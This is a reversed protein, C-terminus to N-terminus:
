RPLDRWRPDPSGTPKPTRPSPTYNEAGIGRDPLPSPSAETAQGDIGLGIALAAGLISPNLFETRSVYIGSTVEVCNNDPCLTEETSRRGELEPVLVESMRKDPLVVVYSRYPSATEVITGAASGPRTQPQSPPYVGILPRFLIPITPCGLDIQVGGVAYPAYWSWRPYKELEAFAAHASGIAIDTDFQVDEMLQICVALRDRTDVGLPSRGVQSEQASRAVSAGVLVVAAVVLGQLLASRRWNRRTRRENTRSRRPTSPM